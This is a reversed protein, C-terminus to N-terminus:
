WTSLSGGVLHEAVRCASQMGPAHELLMQLHEFAWGGLDAACGRKAARAHTIFGKEDLTAAAAKGREVWEWGPAARGEHQVLLKDLKAVTAATAPALGPTELLDAAKGLQGHSVATVVANAARSESSRETGPSARGRRGVPWADEAAALLEEWEGAHFARLSECVHAIELQVGRLGEGATAQPPPAYLVMKPFLLWLAEVRRRHEQDRGTTARDLEGLIESLLDRVAAVVKAPVFRLARVPHLLSEEVLIGGMKPLWRRWGGAAERAALLADGPGAREPVAPVADGQM